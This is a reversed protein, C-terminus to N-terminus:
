YYLSLMRGLYSEFNDCLNGANNIWFGRNKKISCSVIKIIKSATEATALDMWVNEGQAKNIVYFINPHVKCCSFGSTFYNLRSIHSYQPIRM